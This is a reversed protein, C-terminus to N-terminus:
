ISDIVGQVIEALLIAYTGFVLQNSVIYVPFSGHIVKFIKNQNDIFNNIFPLFLQTTKLARINDLM